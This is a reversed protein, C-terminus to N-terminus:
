CDEGAASGKKVYSFIDVLHTVAGHILQVQLLM